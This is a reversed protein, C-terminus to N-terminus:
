LANPGDAVTKNGTERHIGAGVKVIPQTTTRALSEPHVIEVLGLTHHVYELIEELRGLVLLHPVVVTKIAVYHEVLSDVAHHTIIQLWM